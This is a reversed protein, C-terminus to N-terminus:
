EFLHKAIFEKLEEQTKGNLLPRRIKSNTLRNYLTEISARLYVTIAHRDHITEMNNYYCPTGGGLSIIMPRNQELLEILAHHETKRFYIEGKTEFLHSITSKTKEEIFTDLDVHTVNMKSQLFDAVTSKGSGMYGLLIIKTM